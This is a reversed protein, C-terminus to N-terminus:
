RTRVADLSVVPDDGLVEAEHLVGRLVVLWDGAALVVKRGHMGMRFQGSLVVDIKDVSRRHPAFCTDPPYFYRSVEYGLRELKSRM